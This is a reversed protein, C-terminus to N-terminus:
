PQRHLEMTDLAEPVADVADSTEAYIDTDALLQVLAPPLTGEDLSAVCRWARLFGDGARAWWGARPAFAACVEALELADVAAPEPEPEATEESLYLDLNSFLVDYVKPTASANTPPINAGPVVM